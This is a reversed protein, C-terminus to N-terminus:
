QLMCRAASLLLPHHHLLVLFPLRPNAQLTPGQQAAGEPMGRDAGTSRQPPGVQGGEMTSSGQGVLLWVGLLLLLLLLLLPAQL